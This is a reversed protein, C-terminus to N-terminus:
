RSKGERGSRVIQWFFALIALNVTVMTGIWLKLQDWVEARQDKILQDQFIQRDRLAEIDRQLLRLDNNAAASLSDGLPVAKELVALREELDRVQSISVQTGRQKSNPPTPKILKRLSVLQENTFGISVTERPGGLGTRQYQWLAL